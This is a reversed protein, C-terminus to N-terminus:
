YSFNVTAASGSSIDAPKSLTARGPAQTELTYKGAAATDATFALAASTAYAAKVPAGVPLRLSYTGLVSDVGQAAVQIAPGGALGQLARVSADTVPVTTTGSGSATTAAVAGTVAAMASVPPAIATATGNVTTVGTLTAVPISTVVATSRGDSTVVLTYSGPDLYPISFKGSTDPATSRVIVGNQQASVTTAGATLSTSVYGQIATTLRPVVTVVPKLIYQGSNGAKVVSKCADFDLVMDALQGSAINFHAQLKLGSQQASPTKLDVLAGGTVQAANAFAATSSNEALVLRVQSYHGAALPMSGLEELVGNTLSLLDMRRPPSLTLDSWGSEADGANPSQHVRVKEVTVFISDYGCSPADTIAVRLTGPAAGTDGGGGGGGGCAVLATAAALAALWRMPRQTMTTQSKM